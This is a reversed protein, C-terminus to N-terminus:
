RLSDLANQTRVAFDDAILEHSVNDVFAQLDDRLHITMSALPWRKSDVAAHIREYRLHLIETELWETLESVALMPGWDGGVSAALIERWRGDPFYDEAVIDGPQPYLPRLFHMAHRLHIAWSDFLAQRTWPSPSEGSYHARQVAMSESLSGFLREFIHAVHESAM